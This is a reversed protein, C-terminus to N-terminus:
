TSDLMVTYDDGVAKRVAECVKIDDRWSQPPPDQLRDLRLIPLAAGASLKRM